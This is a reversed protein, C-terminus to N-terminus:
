ESSRFDKLNYFKCKDLPYGRTLYPTAIWETLKPEEYEILLDKIKLGYKHSIQTIEKEYSSITNFWRQKIERDDVQKRVNIFINDGIIDCEKRHCITNYIVIFDWGETPSVETPSVEEKDASNFIEIDLPLMM